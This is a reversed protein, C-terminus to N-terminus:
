STSPRRLLIEAARELTALEDKPLEALETVLRQVRRRRGAQLLAHGDDTASVTVSRRDREGSMRSVLGAAELSGVLRSITPLTVQEAAALASVSQPGGFVLVSLLSLQAPTVGSASDERRVSRLLRIAASHLRDAV